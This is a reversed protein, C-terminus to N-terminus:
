GSRCGTAASCGSRGLDVAAKGDIVAAAGVIEHMFATAPSELRPQADRNFADAFSQATVAAGTHFRFTQKLEFTYTRGDKSVTFRDVVEPVVRTGAAGPADPYNFLKACTAYGIPWSWPLLRAGPRRLRRGLVSRGCRAARRRRGPEDASLRPSSALGAAVSRRERRSRQLPRDRGKPEGCGGKPAISRREASSTFPEATARAARRSEDM